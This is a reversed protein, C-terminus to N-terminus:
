NFANNITQQTNAHHLHPSAHEGAQYRAQNDTPRVSRRPEARLRIRLAKVRQGDRQKWSAHETGTQKLCSQIGAAELETRPSSDPSGAPLPQHVNQKM